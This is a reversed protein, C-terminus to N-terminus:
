ECIDTIIFPFPIVRVWKEYLIGQIERRNKAAADKM